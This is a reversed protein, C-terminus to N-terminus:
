NHWVYSHTLWAYLYTMNCMHRFLYTMDCRRIFSAHWVYSRTLWVYLRTVDCMHRFLHTTDPFHTMDSMCIPLLYVNMMDYIYMLWTVSVYSYTVDSAHILWGCTYALWTVCTGFYILPIMYILWTVCVYLCTHMWLKMYMFILCTVHRCVDTRDCMCGDARACVCFKWDNRAGSMHTM